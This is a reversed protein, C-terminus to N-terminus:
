FIWEWNKYIKNLRQEYEQEKKVEDILKIYIEYGEKQYIGEQDILYDNYKDEIKYTCKSKDIKNIIGDIDKQNKVFYYRQQKEVHENIKFHVSKYWKKGNKIITIERNNDNYKSIKFKGATEKLLIFINDSEKIISNNNKTIDKIKQKAQKVDDFTNLNETLKKIKDFKETFEKTEM